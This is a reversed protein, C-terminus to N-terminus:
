MRGARRYAARASEVGGYVLEGSGWFEKVPCMVRRSDVTLAPIGSCTHKSESETQKNLQGMGGCLIARRDERIGRLLLLNRLAHRRLNLRLVKRGLTGLDDRSDLGRLLPPVCFLVVLEVQEFVRASVLAWGMAEVPLTVM